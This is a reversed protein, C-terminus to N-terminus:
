TMYFGSPNFIPRYHSYMDFYPQDYIIRSLNNYCTFSWDDDNRALVIFSYNKALDRRIWISGIEPIIPVNGGSIM